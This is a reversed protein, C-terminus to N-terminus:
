DSWAEGAAELGSADEAVTFTWTHTSGSVSISVAYHSGPVLPLRPIVVVADRGDLLGRGLSQFGPNPNYYSTEDFACHEVPVGDRLLATGTVDPTFIGPGLQLMLPLGAPHAYGPCSTLPDPVEGAYQTLYVLSGEGPWLIPFSVSPPVGGVGRIIDIGAAMMLGGDEERYSSFGTELLQPTLLGVAHFPGSIWWAIATQDDELNNFSGFLNSSQAAANGEPTYWPNGPNESHQLQDNKVTYRSHLWNGNSWDPNEIV